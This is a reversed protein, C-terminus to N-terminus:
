NKIQKQFLCTMLLDEYSKMFPGPQMLEEFAPKVASKYRSIRDPDRILEITKSIYEDDSYAVLEPFGSHILISSSVNHAHYDRNYKTIVPVSYFMSKCTTTTGSYPFTDLLIDIQSYLQALDDEMALFGVLILRDRSINLVDMYYQARSLENEGKCLKILIAAHPCEYLIKRWASIAYTSIKSERNLSGIVIRSPDVQKPVVHINFLNDFLLFSCPMHIRKESYHQNSEPHDAIADTIRYHICDLGISNPFGIYTMQVPCPNLAFMELRNLTTHGNLDILIHIGLTHIYSALDWDSMSSIHHIKVRDGVFENFYGGGCGSGRGDGGNSFCHVEFVDSNHNILIPIIFHSVVHTDFDSSVYGVKIKMGREIKPFLFSKSKPVFHNYADHYQKMTDPTLYQYDSSIFLHNFAKKYDTNNNNSGYECDGYACNHDYKIHHTHIISVATQLYRIAKERNRIDNFCIGANTYCRILIHINTECSDIIKQFHMISKKFNRCKLQYGALLYQVRNDEIKDLVDSHAITYQSIGSLMNNDFLIKLYDLLCEVYDPYRDLCQKFWLTAKTFLNKKLYICGMYYLLRADNPFLILLKTIVDKQVCVDNNDHVILIGLEYLDKIHNNNNNNNNNLDNGYFLDNYQTNFKSLM